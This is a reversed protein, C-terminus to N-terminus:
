EGAAALARMELRQDIFFRAEMRLRVLETKLSAIQGRKKAEILIGIVGTIPLGLAFAVARGDAEDILVRSAKLTLALRIAACEGSDLHQIQHPQAANAPVPTPILWGSRLASAIETLGSAHRLRLLEAEVESPILITGFQDQLCSLRGIVALNSVPSTNSVVPM